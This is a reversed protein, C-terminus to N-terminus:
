PPAEVGRVEKVVIGYEGSEVASPILCRQESLDVVVLGLVPSADIHMGRPLHREVIAVDVRIRCRPTAGPTAPSSIASADDDEVVVNTWNAGVGEGVAVNVGVRCGSPTSPDADM